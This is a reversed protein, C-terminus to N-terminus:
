KAVAVGGHGGNAFVGSGHGHGTSRGALREVDRSQLTRPTDDLVGLQALREELPYFDVFQTIGVENGDDGGLCGVAIAMLPELFTQVIDLTINFQNNLVATLVDGADDGDFGFRAEQQPEVARSQSQAVILDNREEAVLSAQGHILTRHKALSALAVHAEIHATGAADDQLGHLLEFCGDVGQLVTSKINFIIAQM